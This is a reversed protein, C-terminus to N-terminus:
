HITSGDKARQEYQENEEEELVEDIQEFLEDILDEDDGVVETIVNEYDSLFKRYQEEVSPQVDVAVIINETPIDIIAQDTLKIWPQLGYTEILYPGRNIKLSSVLVPDSVPITRNEKFNVCNSETSVIINEGNTLKLYKCFM